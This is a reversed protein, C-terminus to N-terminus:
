SLSKITDSKLSKFINTQIFDSDFQELEDIAAKVKELAGQIHQQIVEDEDNVASKLYITMQELAFLDSDTDSPLNDASRIEASLETAAKAASNSMSEYHRVHFELNETEQLWHYLGMFAKLEKHLQDLAVQQDDLLM